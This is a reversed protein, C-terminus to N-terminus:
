TAPWRSTSSSTGSPRTRGEFTYLMSTDEIPSQQVAPPLLPESPAFSTDPDKADYTLLGLHQRDPIPLHDRGQAREDAMDVAGDRSPYATRSSGRVHGSM